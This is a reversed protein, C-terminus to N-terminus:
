YLGQRGLRLSSVLRPFVRHAFVGTYAGLLAPIFAAPLPLDADRHPVPPAAAGHAVLLAVPIGLGLLLGFRLAGKPHALGCVFAGGILLAVSLVDADARLHLYGTSLSLILAGMYMYPRSPGQRARRDSFREASASTVLDALAYAWFRMLARSGQKMSHRCAARFVQIMQSGFDRRFTPPYAILLIAYTRASLEITRERLNSVSM